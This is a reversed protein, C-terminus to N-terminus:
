TGVSFTADPFDPRDTSILNYFDWEDPVEIGFLNARYTYFVSSPDDCDLCPIRSYQWPDSIVIWGNGEPLYRVEDSLPPPQFIANERPPVNLALRDLDRFALSESPSLPLGDFWVGDQAKLPGTLCLGLACCALAAIWCKLNCGLAQRLWRVCDFATSFWEDLSSGCRTRSQRVRRGDTM